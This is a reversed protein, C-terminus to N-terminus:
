LFLATTKESIASRRKLRKQPFSPTCRFEELASETTASFVSDRRRFEDSRNGNGEEPLSSSLRVAGARYLVEIAFERWRPRSHRVTSAEAFSPEIRPDPGEAHGHAANRGARVFASGQREGSM